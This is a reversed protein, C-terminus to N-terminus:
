HRHPASLRLVPYEDVGVLTGLEGAHVPCREELVVIQFVGHTSPTITMVIGNRLTEEVQQFTLADPAPCIFSSFVCSPVYEVVDFHEIIWFAFM